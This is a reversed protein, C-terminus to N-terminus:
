LHLQTLSSGTISPCFRSCSDEFDLCEEVDPPKLPPRRFSPDDHHDFNFSENELLPLSDNSFLKELFHIDGELDYEINEIGPPISNDSVLFLDVTELLPDNTSNDSIDDMVVSTLRGQDPEIKFHFSDYEPLSNNANGTTSGSRTDETHHGFTEFEPLSYDSYSFSIDTEKMFSDSDEVPIPFSSPSKLVRDLTPNDNLSEINAILRNINLLKERLIANQIQLIKELHIEKEEQDVDNVEELSVLESDPLSAEVYEIDEFADDDSSTDDDNSDSLIECHDKLTSSNLSYKLEETPLLPAITNLTRCKTPQEVINKVEQNEKDLRQSKLFISLLKSNLASEILDDVDNDMCYLEKQRCVKLLELMTDEM